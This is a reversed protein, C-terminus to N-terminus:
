NRLDYIIRLTVCRLNEIADNIITYIIYPCELQIYYIKTLIYIIPCKKLKIESRTHPLIVYLYM